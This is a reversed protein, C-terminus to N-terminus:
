SLFYTFLILMSSILINLYIRLLILFSLNLFLDYFLLPLMFPLNLSPHLPSLSALPRNLYSSKQDSWSSPELQILDHIPKFNFDFYFFYFFLFQVLSPSQSPRFRSGLSPRSHQGKILGLNLGFGLGFRLFQYTM